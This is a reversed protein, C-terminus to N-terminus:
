VRQSMIVTYVLPKCVTIYYDYFYQLCFSLECTIFVLFFAFQTACSYYSNTNPNVASNVLMKPSVITFYGLDSLYLHRLFFMHANAGQLGGAHPCDHECKGGTLHYIHHPVPFLSSHAVSSSRHHGASHICKDSHSQM